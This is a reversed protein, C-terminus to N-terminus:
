SVAKDGPRIPPIVALHDLDPCFATVDCGDGWIVRYQGRVTPDLSALQAFAAVSDAAVSTLPHGARRNVWIIVVAFGQDLIYRYRETSRAKHRGYSHWGGGFIEVAVPGLAIDANYPGIAQQPVVVHNGRQGLWEILLTEAPSGYIRRHQRTLANRCKAEFPVPRGRVAAHAAVTWAANQEPTRRAHALSQAAQMGRPAVGAKILRSRITGRAVGFTQALALESEGTLYRRVLDAADLTRRERAMDIVELRLIMPVYGITNYCM